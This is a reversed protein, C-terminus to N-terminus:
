RGAPPKTLRSLEAMDEATPKWNGAAANARIQEPKTAGAIVSSVVPNGALGGIALDLMTVGRAQAFAELAELVDFM